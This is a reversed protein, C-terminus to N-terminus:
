IEFKLNAKDLYKALEESAEVSPTGILIPQGLAHREAIEKVMAKIKGDKHAFIYDTADERIVPKNTPICIVRMNYIKQFEEEETKATGTM